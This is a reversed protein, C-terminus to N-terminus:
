PPHPLPSRLSSAVKKKNKLNMLNGEGESATKTFVPLETLDESLGLTKHPPTKLCQM